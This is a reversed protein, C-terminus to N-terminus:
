AQRTMVLDPSLMLPAVWAQIDSLPLVSDDLRIGVVKEMYRRRAQTAAWFEPAARELAARLGADALYVGDECNSGFGRAVVPIIDMQIMMGSALAIDSGAVFPSSVWEEVHIHHGPNLLIREIRGSKQALVADHVEGAVAGVRVGEYWAAVMDLYPSVVEEIYGPDVSALEEPEALVYGARVSIAGWGGLAMALPEGRAIPRRTPSALGLATRAGSALIPHFSLPRGDYDFRRAIDAEPEGVRLGTIARLVGQSASRCAPAFALIQELEIRTRLGEGPHMMLATANVVHEAGVIARLPDAVFAPLDLTRDPREAEIDLFFKWGVAGVSQGAALGAARLVDEVRPAEARSQGLLSFSQCLLPRFAVPSIPAYGVGENGLLLFTDGARHLVLLAEEFRPDFGTLYHLNGCHERDGYVVLVDLGMHAMRGRVAALRDDFVRAPLEAAPLAPAPQPPEAKALRFTM